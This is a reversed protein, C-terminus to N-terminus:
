PDIWEEVLMQPASFNDGVQINSTTTKYRYGSPLIIKPLPQYIQSGSTYPDIPLQIFNYNRTLSALQTQDTDLYILINTGDDFYSRVVRTLATPDTVLTFRISLIRWRRRDPVTESIDFNPAPDTGTISLLRGHLHQITPSVDM